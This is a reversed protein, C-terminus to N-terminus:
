SSVGVNNLAFVRQFYSMQRGQEDCVAIGSGNSFKIINRICNPNRCLSGGDASVKCTHTNKNSM